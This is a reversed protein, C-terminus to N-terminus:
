IGMKGAPLNSELLVVYLLYIVVTVGIVYVIKKWAAVGSGRSFLFCTLLLTLPISVKYGVWHMALYNLTYIGFLIWYRKWQEKTMYAKKSSQDKRVILVLSFLGILFCAIYPFLRPGPDGIFESQKIGTTYYAFVLSVILLIIGLLRDKNIGKQM